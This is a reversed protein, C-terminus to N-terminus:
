AFSETFLYAKLHRNFVNTDIITRLHSPLSNWAAPGSHSFGREGFKTRTTRKVYDTTESSRQYNSVSCHRGPVATSSRHSDPADALLTQVQNHWGSAVLPTSLHMSYFIQTIEVYFDTVAKQLQITLMLSHCHKWSLFCSVIYYYYFYLFFQLTCM